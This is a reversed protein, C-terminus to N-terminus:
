ARVAILGTSNGTSMIKYPRLWIGVGNQKFVEEYFAILQMIFVEQRVDDHSKVIVAQLDWTSKAAHMISKTIQLSPFFSLPDSSFRLGRAARAAGVWCAPLCAGVAETFSTKERLRNRKQVWVEGYCPVIKNPDEM